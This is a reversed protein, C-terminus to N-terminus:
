VLPLSKCRGSTDRSLYFCPRRSAGCMPAAYNCTSSMDRPVSSVHIGYHAVCTAPMTACAQRTEQYLPSLSAEIGWVHLRCPQMHRAHRKICLLCPHRRIIRVCQMIRGTITDQWNYTAVQSQAYLCMQTKLHAM